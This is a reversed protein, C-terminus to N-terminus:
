FKIVLNVYFHLLSKEFLHSLFVNPFNVVWRKKKKIKAFQSIFPFKKFRVFPIQLIYIYLLSKITFNSVSEGLNLFSVCAMIVMEIYAEWTTSTTFFRSALALLGLSLNLEMWSDPLNGPPPFPVESWYEPRSFEMSLPAQHAIPRSWVHSLVSISILYIFCSFFLTLSLKPLLYGDACM